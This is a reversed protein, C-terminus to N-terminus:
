SQQIKKFLLLDKRRQIHHWYTGCQLIIFLLYRYQTHLFPFHAAVMSTIANLTEYWCVYYLHDPDLGLSLETQIRIQILSKMYIYFFVNVFIKAFIMCNLFLLLINLIKQIREKKSKQDTWTGASTKNYRRIGTYADEMSIRFVSHMVVMREGQINGATSIVCGWM